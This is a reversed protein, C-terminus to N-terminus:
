GTPTPEPPPAEGGPTATPRPRPPQGPIVCRRPLNPDIGPADNVTISVPAEPIASILIFPEGGIATVDGERLFPFYDCTAAPLALVYDGDATPRIWTNGALNYLLGNSTETPITAQMPRITRNWIVYIREDSAPRDFTIVVARNNVEDITPNTLEGAGFVQTMLAYAGAVPRPSDPQPHERFCVADSGNRFLGFADGFCTEGAECLNRANPPFNTGGPQNGCDDYLQHYFIVEAGQALAYATSQIFFHAQQVQTARLQKDKPETVWTPGPYDDWTPVGSENLWIPKELDYAILTQQAVLVLWQSRWSYSYSHVAVIDFFWNHEERMPDQLYLALVRALWNDNTNYLLGGFMVQADPDALKTVLYSVKLLRAYDNISGSWFLEFDPENWVEWVRIGREAEWDLATALAGGPKYRLVAQYVFNAWPNAPNIAKGPRPTDSGDAFIPEHIGAIRNDDAAWAPRGLLVANVRLGQATDDEVLRDYEEWDWAAPEAEVWNWYLPWRNWGAGLELARAYREPPHAQEAGSIHNIGFRASRLYDDPPTPTSRDQAGLPALSLAIFLLLAVLPLFARHM